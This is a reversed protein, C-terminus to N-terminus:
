LLSRNCLNEANIVASALLACNIKHIINIFMSMKRIMKMMTALTPTGPATLLMKMRYRLQRVPLTRRMEFWPFCVDLCKIRMEIQQLSLLNAAYRRRACSQPDMWQIQLKDRSVIWGYESGISPVAPSPELSRKVVATVYSIRKCNCLLADRTPPLKQPDPTKNMSIFKQYRGEDTDDCKLDYM